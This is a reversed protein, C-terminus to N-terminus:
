AECVFCPLDNNNSFDIWKGDMNWCIAMGDEQNNMNNPEGDLFNKFMQDGRKVYGSSWVLHGEEDFDNLGIWACLDWGALTTKVHGCAKRSLKWVATNETPNRITALHQQKSACFKEAAHWSMSRDYATYKDDTVGENFRVSHKRRWIELRNEVMSKPSARGLEKFNTDSRYVGCLADTKSKPPKMINLAQASGMDPMLVFPPSAGFVKIGMAKILTSYHWDIAMSCPAQTFSSDCPFTDLLRNASKRNVAYASGSMFMQIPRVSFDNIGSSTTYDYLKRDSETFPKSAIAKSRQPTNWECQNWHVTNCYWNLLLIDWNDKGQTEVVQKYMWLLKDGFDDRLIVDDEFLISVRDDYNGDEHSSSAPCDFIHVVAAKGILDLEYKTSVQASDIRFEMIQVNGRKVRWAEMLKSPLTKEMGPQVEAVRKNQGSTDVFYLVATDKKMRNRFTLYVKEGFGAISRLSLDPPEGCSAESNAAALLFNVHGYLCGVHGRKTPDIKHLFRKVQDPLLNADDVGFSMSDIGPLRSARIGFKSLQKQVCHLKDPRRDLNLIFFRFKDNLTKALAKDCNDCTKIEVGNAIDKAQKLANLKDYLMKITRAESPVVPISNPYVFVYFFWILNTWFMLSCM